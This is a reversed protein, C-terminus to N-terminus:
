RLSGLVLYTFFSGHAQSSITSRVKQGFKEEKAKEFRREEEKGENEEQHLNAISSPDIFVIAAEERPRIKTEPKLCERM